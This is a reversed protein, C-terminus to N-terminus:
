PSHYAFDEQLSKRRVDLLNNLVTYPVWGILDHRVATGQYGPMIIADIGTKVVLQRFKEKVAERQENLDYLGELTLPAYDYPMRDHPLDTSSLAPIRPEGSATIHKFATNAPDMSFLRFAVLMADRISPTELNVVEHGAAKLAEVARTLTHLVPPHVPFHPDELIFGLKLKEKPSVTRWSSFVASSDLKWPDSEVVLRTFLM